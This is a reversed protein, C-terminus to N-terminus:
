PFIMNKLSNKKEIDVTNLINYGNTKEDYQFFAFTDEIATLIAGHEYGEYDDILLNVNLKYNNPIQYTIDNIKTLMEDNIQPIEKTKLNKNKKIIM